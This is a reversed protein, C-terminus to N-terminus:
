LDRGDDSGQSWFGNVCQIDVDGDCDYDFIATGWAWSAGRAGQAPDGETLKNDDGQMYITNGKSMRRRVENIDMGAMESQTPDGGMQRVRNAATSAMNSVYLDNDLDGDLDTWTASMSFGADGDSTNQLETTFHVEDTNDRRYLVNPGFDNAVYLDIDGDEDADGWAGIFGWRSSETDLGWAKTMPQFGGKMGRNRYMVNNRGNTANTPDNPGPSIFPGYGCMFIDLWGDGDVDHASLSGSIIRKVKPAAEKAIFTHDKQQEFVTLRRGKGACAFDQDGDRDFDAILVSNFPAGVDLASQEPELLEVTRDEFTGDGRNYLLRTPLMTILDEDGDLDLDGVALARNIGSMEKPLRPDYYTGKLAEGTIDVFHPADSLLTYCSKQPEMKRCRWGGTENQVWESEWYGNDHRIGGTNLERNFRYKMTLTAVGDDLTLAAPKCVAWRVRKSATHESALAQQWDALSLLPSQGEWDQRVVGDTIHSETFLTPAFPAIRADPLFVDHIDPMSSAGSWEGLLHVKLALLPGAILENSILEETWFEDDLESYEDTRIEHVLGTGVMSVSEDTMDGTSTADAMSRSTDEDNAVGEAAGPASDGPQDPSSEVGCGCLLAILLPWTLFQSPLPISM